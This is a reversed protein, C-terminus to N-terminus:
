NGTPRNPGTALREASRRTEGHALVLFTSPASGSLRLAQRLRRPPEDLPEDTLAFTGWHIAVSQKSRKRALFPRRSSARFLWFSSRIM